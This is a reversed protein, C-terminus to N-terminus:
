TTCPNQPCLFDRGFEYAAGYFMQDEVVSYGWLGLKKIVVRITAVYTEVLNYRFGTEVPGRLCKQFTQVPTTMTLEVTHLPSYINVTAAGDCPRRDQTTYSNDPRFDLSLNRAFNRYGFLHAPVVSPLNFLSLM